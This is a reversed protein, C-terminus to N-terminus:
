WGAGIEPTSTTGSFRGAAPVRDGHCTTGV